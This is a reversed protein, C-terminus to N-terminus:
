FPAQDFAYKCEWHRYMTPAQYVILRLSPWDCAELSPVWMGFVEWSGSGKWTPESLYELQNPGCDALGM